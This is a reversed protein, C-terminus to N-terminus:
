RVSRLGIVVVPRLGRDLIAILGVLLFRIHVLRIMKMSMSVLMLRGSSLSIRVKLLLSIRPVFAVVLLFLSVLM